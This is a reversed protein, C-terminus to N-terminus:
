GASMAIICHNRNEPFGRLNLSLLQLFARSTRRPEVWKKTSRTKNQREQKPRSIVYDFVARRIEDVLKKHKRNSGGSNTGDILLFGVPVDFYEGVRNLFGLSPERKDQEVLSLYGPTVSLQEALSGQSIKRATRLMRITQGTKMKIKKFSLSQTFTWGRNKKDADVAALLEVLDNVIQDGQQQALRKDLPQSKRHADLESQARRLRDCLADVRGSKSGTQEILRLTLEVARDLRGLSRAFKKNTNAM